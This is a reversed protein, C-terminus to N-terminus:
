FFLSFRKYYFLSVKTALYVSVPLMEMSSGDSLVRCLRSGFNILLFTFGLLFAKLYYNLSSQFIFGLIYFIIFPSGIVIWQKMKKDGTVGNWMTMLRKLCSHKGSSSEKMQQAALTRIREALRPGLWQPKSQILLQQCTSGKANPVDM